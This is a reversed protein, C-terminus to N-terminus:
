GRRCAADRAVVDDLAALRAAAMLLVSPATGVNQRWLRRSAVQGIQARLRLRPRPPELRAPRRRARRPRRGPRAGDAVRRRGSPAGCPARPRRRSRARAAARAACSPRRPAPQGVLHGERRRAQVLEGGVRRAEVGVHGVRGVDLLGGPQGEQDGVQRRQLAVVRPRRDGRGARAPRRALQRHELVDREPRAGRVIGRAACRRQQGIARPGLAGARLRLGEDAIGRPGVLAAEVAGELAQRQRAEAARRAELQQHVSPRRPTKSTRGHDSCSEPSASSGVITAELRTSPM